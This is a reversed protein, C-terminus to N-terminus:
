ETDVSGSLHRITAKSRRIRDNIRRSYEDVTSKSIELREAIQAHTLGQEKLAQVEAERTKLATENKLVGARQRWDGM